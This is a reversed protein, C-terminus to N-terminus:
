AAGKGSMDKIGMNQEIVDLRKLIPTLDDLYAFRRIENKFLSMPNKGINIGHKFRCHGQYGQWARSGKFSRECYECQIYLEPKKM